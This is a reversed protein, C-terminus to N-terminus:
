YKKIQIGTYFNKRTERSGRLEHEPELYWRIVYVGFQDQGFEPADWSVLYGDTNLNVSVNRPPGIQSFPLISDPM